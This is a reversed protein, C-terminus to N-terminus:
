TRGMWGATAAATLTPTCSLFMWARTCRLQLLMNRAFCVMKVACVEACQLSCPLLKCPPSLCTPAAVASLLKQTSATSGPSLQSQHSQCCSPALSTIKQLDKIAPHLQDLLSKCGNMMPCAPMFFWTVDSHVQHKRLLMNM